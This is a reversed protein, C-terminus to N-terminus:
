MQSAKDGSDPTNTIKRNLINSIGINHDRSLPEGIKFCKQLKM